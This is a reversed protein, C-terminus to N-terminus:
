SLSRPGLLDLSRVEPLHGALEVRLERAPGASVPFGVLPTVGVRFRDVLV